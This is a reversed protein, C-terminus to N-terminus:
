WSFRVQLHNYKNACDALQLFHKFSGFAAQLEPIAAKSHASAIGCLEAPMDLDRSLSCKSYSNWKPHTSSWAILPALPDIYQVCLKQCVAGQDANIKPHKWGSDVFRSMINGVGALVVFTHLSTHAVIQMPTSCPHSLGFRELLRVM